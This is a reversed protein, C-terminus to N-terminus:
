RGVDEVLTCTLPHLAMQDRGDLRPPHGDTLPRGHLTQALHDPILFSTIGVLSGGLGDGIEAVENGLDLM